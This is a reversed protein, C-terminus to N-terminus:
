ITLEIEAQSVDYFGSFCVFLGFYIKEYGPLYVCMCVCVGVCM